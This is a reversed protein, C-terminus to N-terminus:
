GRLGTHSGVEIPLPDYVRDAVKSKIFATLEDFGKYDRRVFFHLYYLSTTSTGAYSYGDWRPDGAWKTYDGLPGHGSNMWELEPTSPQIILTPKQGFVYDVLKETDRERAIFSDNLGAIDLSRAESFYPIVGADAFAITTQRIDGFESLTRAIAYEKQFLNESDDSRERGHAVEVTASLVDRPAAYILLTGALAVIPGRILISKRWSFLWNWLVCVVPMALFYLFPTVPYLFRDGVDMLTEVRVYFVTYSLVLLFALTRALRAQKSIFLSIVALALLRVEFTYYSVISALGMSSILGANTAKIFFPNPIIGGFYSWKWALYILIPLGLSLSLMAYLHTLRLRFGPRYITAFLAFLVALILAEPRLLAALFLSVGFLAVYRPSATRTFRTVYYFSLTLFFTFIVTELGVASLFFTKAAPLFAAAVVVATLRGAGYELIALRGCLLAVGVASLVSLVRTAILPDIGLKILPALIVVLLFNTYGETPAADRNWTLGYGDALNKAYRYTIFADDFIFNRYVALIVLYSAIIGLLILLALTFNARRLQM